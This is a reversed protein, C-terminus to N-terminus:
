NDGKIRVLVERIAKLKEIVQENKNSERSKKKLKEKVGPLTFGEEETLSIIDALKEIDKKTFFKKNGRTEINLNFEREYFRIKSAAVEFHDAVEQTTYFVKLESM